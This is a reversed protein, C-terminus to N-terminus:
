KADGVNGNEQAHAQELIQAIKAAAREIRADRQREDEQSMAYRLSNGVERWSDAVTYPKHSPLPQNIFIRFPATFGDIFGETFAKRRVQNLNM